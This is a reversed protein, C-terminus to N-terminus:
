KTLIGLEKNTATLSLENAARDYKKTAYDRRRREINEWLEKPTAVRLLEVRLDDARGAKNHATITVNLRDCEVEFSFHKNDDIHFTITGEGVIQPGDEGVDVGAAMSGLFLSEDEILRKEVMKYWQGQQGDLEEPEIRMDISEKQRNMEEMTEIRYQLRPHYGSLIMRPPSTLVTRATITWRRVSTIVRYKKMGAIANVEYGNQLVQHEAIHKEMPTTM